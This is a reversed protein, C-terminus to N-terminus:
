RYSIQILYSGDALQRSTVVVDTAAWNNQHWSSLKTVMDGFDRASLTEQEKPNLSERFLRDFLLPQVQPFLLSRRSTIM